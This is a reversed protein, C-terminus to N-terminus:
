SFHDAALKRDPAGLALFSKSRYRTLNMLKASDASSVPDAAAWDDPIRVYALGISM